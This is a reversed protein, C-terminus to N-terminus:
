KRGTLGKALGLKSQTVQPLGSGLLNSSSSPRPEGTRNDKVIDRIGKNSRAMM